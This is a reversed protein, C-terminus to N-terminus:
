ALRRVLDEARLQTYRRLQSWTKHGSIAAVEAVNLSRPYEFLRSIAEHRLDHFRLDRIGAATCAERFQKVVQFQTLPFVRASKDLARPLSEITRIASSSLPVERSDGSKMDHLKAIRRQTDLDAWTLKLLEGERMATEIALSALAAMYPMGSLAELLREEEREELRRSRENSTGPMTISKVPNRLGEMGWDKAAVKFVHSILALETRITGEAKGEARRADRYEALHTGRIASLFRHSLDHAQWVKIRAEERKKGKKKPTIERAYRKLAEGLTMRAAEASPIKGQKIEEEIRRIWDKADGRRSFTETQHKAGRMRVMARYSATGDKQIRKQITGM